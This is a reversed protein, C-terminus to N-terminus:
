KRGPWFACVPIKCRWTLEEPFTSQVGSVISGGVPPLKKRRKPFSPSSKTYARPRAAGVRNQDLAGSGSTFFHNAKSGEEFQESDSQALKRWRERRLPPSLWCCHM